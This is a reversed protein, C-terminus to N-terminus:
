PKAPTLGHDFGDKVWKDGRKTERQGGRGDNRIVYRFQECGSLTQELEITTTEPTRTVTAPIEGRLCSDVAGASMRFFAKGDKEALSITGPTFEEKSYSGTRSKKYGKYEWTQATAAFGICAIAIGTLATHLIRHPLM